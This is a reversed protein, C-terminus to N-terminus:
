AAWDTSGTARRGAPPPCGMPLIAAGEIDLLGVLRERKLREEDYERDLATMQEFVNASRQVRLQRYIAFFTIVLALFQLMTWFWESGPGLISM